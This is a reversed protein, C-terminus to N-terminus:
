YTKMPENDMYLLQGNAIRLYYAAGAIDDPGVGYIRFSQGTMPGAVPTVGNVVQQMSAQVDTGVVPDAGALQACLAITAFAQANRRNVTEVIVDRNPQSLSGIVIASLIGIIAIVLLMEFLSFGSRRALKCSHNSISKM